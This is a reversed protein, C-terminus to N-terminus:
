GAQEIIENLAVQRRAHELPGHSDPSSSEGSRSLAVGRADLERRDPAVGAPQSVAVTGIKTGPRKGVREEREAARIPGNAGATGAGLLLARRPCGLSHGFPGPEDVRGEATPHGLPRGGEVVRRSPGGPREDPEDSPLDRAEPNSSTGAM